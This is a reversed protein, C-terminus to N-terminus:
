HTRGSQARLCVHAVENATLNLTQAIQKYAMYRKAQPGPDTRRFRLLLAARTLEEQQQQPLKKLRMERAFFEFYM